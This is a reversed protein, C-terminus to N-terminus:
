RRRRVLALAGLGFLVMTTPEPVPDHGGLRFAVYDWEAGIVGAYNSGSTGGINLRNDGDGSGTVMTVNGILENDKFLRGLISSPRSAGSSYSVPDFVARYAHQADRTPTSYAVPGGVGRHDIIQDSPTASEPNGDRFDLTFTWPDDGSYMNNRNNSFSVQVHGGNAANGGHRVKLAFEVTVGDGAKGFDAQAPGGATNNNVPSHYGNLWAFMRYGNVSSDIDMIGASPSALNWKDDPNGVNWDACDCYQMGDLGTGDGDVTGAANPFQDFGAYWDWNGGDASNVDMVAWASSGCAGMLAAVLVFTVKRSVTSGNM